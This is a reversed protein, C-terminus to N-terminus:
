DTAAGDQKGRERIQRAAEIMSPAQVSHGPIILGECVKACAEREAEILAEIGRILRADLDYNAVLWELTPPANM